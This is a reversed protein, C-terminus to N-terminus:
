SNEDESDFFFQRRRKEKERREKQRAQEKAQKYDKNAQWVCAAGLLLLLVGTVALAYNIARWRGVPRAFAKRINSVGIYLCMLAVLSFM